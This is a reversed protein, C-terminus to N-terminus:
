DDEGGIYLLHPMLAARFNVNFNLKERAEIILSSMNLIRRLELGEFDKRLTPNIALNRVYYYSIELLTDIDDKKDEFFKFTRYAEFGGFTLLSKLAAETKTKLDFFDVDALIELAKGISGKAFRIADEARIKNYGMFLLHGMIEDDRLPYFKILKARSLITPLINESNSAVLILKVHALPEELTKLLANQAEKSAKDFDRIIYVKYKKYMPLRFSDEVVEEIQSKKVSIKDEIIKLDSHCIEDIQLIKRAFAQAFLFKGLGERGLFLYSHNSGVELDKLLLEKAKENGLLNEFTLYESM